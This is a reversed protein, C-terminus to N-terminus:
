SRSMKTERKRWVWSELRLSEAINGRDTSSFNSIVSDPHNFLFKIKLSQLRAIDRGTQKAKVLELDDKILSVDNEISEIREQIAKQSAM